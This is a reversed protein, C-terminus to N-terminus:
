WLIYWYWNLAVRPRSNDFLMGKVPPACSWQPTAKHRRWPTCCSLGSPLVSLLYLLSLFSGLQPAKISLCCLLCKGLDTVHVLGQTDYGRGPPRSGLALSGKGIRTATALLTWGLHALGWLALNIWAQLLSIDIYKARSGM